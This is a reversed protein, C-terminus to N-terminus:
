NARQEVQWHVREGDYPSPDSSNDISSSYQKNEYLEIEADYVDYSQKLVTVVYGMTEDPPIETTHQQGEPGILSVKVPDADASDEERGGTGDQRDSQKDGSPPTPETEKGPEPGADGETEKGSEPGADGGTEKGPEPGADDEPVVGEVTVNGTTASLDIDRNLLCYITLDDGDELIPLADPSPVTLNREDGIGYAIDVRILGEDGAVVIADLAQGNAISFWWDEDLPDSLLATELDSADRGAAEVTSTILETVEEQLLRYPQGELQDYLATRNDVITDIDNTGTTGNSM